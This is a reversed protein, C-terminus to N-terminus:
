LAVPKAIESHEVAPNLNLYRIRFDLQTEGKKYGNLRPPAHAIPRGFTEGRYWERKIEQKEAVM